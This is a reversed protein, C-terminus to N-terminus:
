CKQTKVGLLNEFLKPAMPPLDMPRPAMFNVIHEHVSYRIKRSKSARRDVIKRKKTQLRKVAYFATESSNPDVKELFEKLLQQYFESDDLLEPDGDPHTAESNVSSAQDSVDGFVGATSRRLQMQKVMRSPDRMYAAVQESINQNFAHLKNRIAAAGTTVQTKRQWKDISKNRFPAIRTHMQSIRSWEEEDEDNLHTSENSHKKLSKGVNGSSSQSISPNKELLSEELEVLSELTKKSSVVLDDYAEKVGEDLNCFTSRIPEQPLRNSNSFPKQLLIRLELSRDWIAKQNKVAQGKLIDDEKHRKLNKLLNLEQNRLEKYEKELDELEDDKHANSKLLGIEEIGEEEEESSGIEKSEDEDDDSEDEDDDVEQDTDDINEEEEADEYDSDQDTTMLDENQLGDSDELESDSGKTSRTKKRSSGM